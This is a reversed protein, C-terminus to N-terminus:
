HFFDFFLFVSQGANYDLLQWVWPLLIVCNALAAFSLRILKRLRLFTVVRGM